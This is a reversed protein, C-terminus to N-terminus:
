GRGSRRLSRTSRVVSGANSSRCAAGARASRRSRASRSRGASRGSTRARPRPSPSARAAADVQHLGAELALRQGVRHDLVEVAAEAAHVADGRARRADAVVLQDGVGALLDLAAVRAAGGVPREALQEERQKGVGAPQADQGAREAGVLPEPHGPRQAPDADLLPQRLPQLRELRQGRRRAPALDDGVDGVGAARLRARTPRRVPQTCRTKKEWTLAAVARARAASPQSTTAGFCPQQPASLM